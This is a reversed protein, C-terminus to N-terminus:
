KQFTIRPDILVYCFDSLVNGLLGLLSSVSLIGMFVMYDRAVIAELSLLGIGPIEFVKEILVSGALILTLVSGFGTAVPILANRVAHGWVARRLTAGKALATRIYDQGMQDLLSNKMLQTIVAFNGIMYCILPLAMHRAQDVIKGGTSLTDHNQSRFGAHPFWDFFAETTGCFLTKLVMGLAFTPVAYAVFVIVGSGIDFASNHRLAKLIGLPICVIYTLFFGTLGFWLSVPFRSAILDWATREPYQYSPAALGLRNDILWEKYRVLIPKHFGFHEQIARIQEPSIAAHVDGRAGGEGAMPGGRMRLLMQEVPGGPVFQCLLFCCFTIGVFTPIILLLRRSFYAVRNM